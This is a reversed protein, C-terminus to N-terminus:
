RNPFAETPVTLSAGTYRAVGKTLRAEDMYGNLYHNPGTFAGVYIGGGNSNLNFDTSVSTDTETLTGNLYVRLTTGERSFALHHWNNSTLGNNLSMNASSGSFNYQFVGNTDTDGRIALYNNSTTADSLLVRYTSSSGGIASTFYLFCEFTFDGAQMLFFPSDPIYMYDDSDFYISGTGFKVQQGSIRTNNVTEINNKMTHDIVGANNFNLLLVTNTDATTPATPPTFISTDVTTSSTQYRSPISGNSINIGSLYGEYDHTTAHSQGTGISIANAAQYISNTGVSSTYRLVGNIFSRFQNSSDRTLVCHYWQGNYRTESGFFDVGNFVDWSSSGTSWYLLNGSYGIVFGYSTSSNFGIHMVIDFSGRATRYEWWEICFQNTGFILSDSADTELYDGNNDFYVSGGVADKTYSRSPAFPSYPLTQPTNTVTPTLNNTSLDKFSNSNATLIQTGTIATLVETPVTISSQTPDYANSGTVHRLNSIYGETDNGGIDSGYAFSTRAGPKAIANTATGERTGNIFIAINNSSDTAIAIHHWEEETLATTSALATPSGGSNYYFTIIRNTPSQVQYEFGNGTSWSSAGGHKGILVQLASGVPKYWFELHADAGGLDLDNSSDAFTIYENTSIDFYTSWYGEEASFPSFTGMNSNGNRTIVQNFKSDDVVGINRVAGSYQCTLLKTNATASAPATPPTFNGTRYVSDYVALDAIYFESATFSNGGGIEANIWLATHSGTALTTAHTYSLVGNLYHKINTGDYTISIHNWSNLELYVFTNYDANYGVFRLQPKGTSSPDALCLSFVKNSPSPDGYQAIYETTTLFTQGSPVYLWCELTRDSTGTPLNSVVVQADDTTAGFYGSGVNATKTVTYPSNTSIKPTGSTTLTHGTTSNDIFRNSQCVLFSTGTEDTFPTTPVTINSAGSTAQYKATGKIFRLNSIFGDLYHNGGGHGIDIDSTNNLDGSAGTTTQDQVGNVYGAVNGSGDRVIAIHVWENLNIASLTFQPTASGLFLRFASSGTNTQLLIGGSSTYGQSYLTTYLNKQTLYVFGELTFAGTGANFESSHAINIQDSNATAFSTSWYGDAYYYPSFDNGYPNNHLIIQNNASSNDRFAKYNPDGLNPTDGSGESGDGHLLLITNKFEPDTTEAAATTSLGFGLPRTSIGSKISRIPM